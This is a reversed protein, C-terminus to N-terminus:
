GLSEEINKKVKGKVKDVVSKHVNADYIHIKDCLISYITDDTYDRILYFDAGIPNNKSAVNDRNTNRGNGYGIYTPLNIVGRYKDFIYGSKWGNNYEFAVKDDLTTNNYTSM